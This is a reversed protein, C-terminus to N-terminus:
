EIYFLKNMATLFIDVLYTVPLFTINWSFIHRLEKKTAFEQRQVAKIVLVHNNPVVNKNKKKRLTLWILSLGLGWNFGSNTLHTKGYMCSDVSFCTMEVYYIFRQKPQM